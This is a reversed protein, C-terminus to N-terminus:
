LKMKEELSKSFVETDMEKEKEEEEEEEGRVAKISSEAPGTHQIQIVREKPGELAKAVPPAKVTLVGDSSLASSVEKVDFEEPLLYRRVFRRSVFSEGDEREEHKGEIVISNDVTKVSIENPAFHEVDLSVQFGDKNKTAKGESREKQDLKWSHRMRQPLRRHCQSKEQLKRLDRPSFTLAFASSPIRQDEFFEFPNLLM